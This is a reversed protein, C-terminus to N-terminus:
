QVGKLDESSYTYAKINYTECFEELTMDLERLLESLSISTTGIIDGNSTTEFKWKNPVVIKVPKDNDKPIIFNMGNTNIINSNEM